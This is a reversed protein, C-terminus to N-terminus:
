PFRRRLEADLRDVSRTLAAFSAGNAAPKAVLVVDLGARWSPRRERVLERLRRRVLNRQVANGVKSSVTFGVRAPSGPPAGTLVMATVLESSLKAGREQVKLFERRRRLRTAKPLGTM